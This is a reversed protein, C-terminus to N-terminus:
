AKIICILATIIIVIIGGEIVFSSGFIKLLIYYVLMLGVTIPISIWSFTFTITIPLCVILGMVITCTLDSWQKSGDRM